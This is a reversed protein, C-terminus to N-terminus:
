LHLKKAIEQETTFALVRQMGELYSIWYITGGDHGGSTDIFQQALPHREEEDTEEHM